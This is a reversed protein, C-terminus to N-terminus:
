HGMCGSTICSPGPSHGRQPMSRTSISVRGDDVLALGTGPDASAATSVSPPMMRISGTWTWFMPTTVADLITQARTQAQGTQEILRLNQTVTAAQDMLSNIRRVEEVQLDVGQEAEGVVVGIWEGSAKLPFIALSRVGREDM